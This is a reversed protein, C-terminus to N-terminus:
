GSVRSHETLSGEIESKVKLENLERQLGNKNMMYESMQGEIREQVDIQETQAELLALYNENNPNRDYELQALQVKKAVMEEELKMQETLFYNVLENAEIREEITRMEDDRVQRARESLMQFELQTKNRQADAIAVEKQLAVFEQASKLSEGLVSPISAFNGSSVAQIIGNFAFILTQLSVAFSDSVGQNSSLVDKFLQFGEIVLGIGAAKLSLGLGKFGKSLVDVGKKADKASDGVEGVEDAINEISDATKDAQKQSAKLADILEDLKRELGSLDAGIVINKEIAM